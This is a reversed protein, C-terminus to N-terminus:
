RRGLLRSRNENYLTKPRRNREAPRSRDEPAAPRALSLSENYPTKPWRAFREEGSFGELSYIPGSKGRAPPDSV